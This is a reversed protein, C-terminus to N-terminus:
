AMYVREGDYILLDLFRGAVFALIWVILKLVKMDKVFLVVILLVLAIILAM